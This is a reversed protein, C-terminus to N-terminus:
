LARLYDSLVSLTRRMADTEPSLYYDHGADPLVVARDPVSALWHDSPRRKDEAGFFVLSPVAIPGEDRLRTSSVCALAALNGGSSVARWLATGGASYGLGITNGCLRACLAKVVIDMGGAEFLHGHLADGSLDVRGCLASLSFREVEVSRDFARSVCLGQEPRRHIDTVVCLKM